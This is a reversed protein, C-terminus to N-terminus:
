VTLIVSLSMNRLIAQDQFHGTVDDAGRRSGEWVVLALCGNTRYASALRIAEDCMFENTRYYAEHDQVTGVVVVDNRSRAISMVGDFLAGWNGPRDVVSTERFVHEDYPLVIRFRTAREQAVEIALLDAGCAASSVLMTVNHLAFVGHLAHKVSDIRHLPFRIVDANEPDIRRGAAVAIM